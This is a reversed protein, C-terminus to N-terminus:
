NTEASSCERTSLNQGRHREYFLPVYLFLSLCSTSYCSGVFFSCAKGYWDRENNALNFMQVLGHPRYSLPLSTSNVFRFSRCTFQSISLLRTLQWWKFGTLTDSIWTLVAIACRCYVCCCNCEYLLTENNRVQNNKICDLVLTKPKVAQGSALLLEQEKVDVGTVEALKVQLDEIRFCSCFLFFISPNCLSRLRTEHLQPMTVTKSEIHYLIVKFKGKVWLCLEVWPTIVDTRFVSECRTMELIGKAEADLCNTWLSWMFILKWQVDMKTSLLATKVQFM